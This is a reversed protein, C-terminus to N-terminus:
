LWAEKVAVGDVLTGNRSGLDRVVARGAQVEIECHFRSVTEDELVLNASAHTGVVVREAESTHSTGKASGSLVRLWFRHVMTHDAPRENLATTTRGDDPGNAPPDEPAGEREM